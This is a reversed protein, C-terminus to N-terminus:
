RGFLATSAPWRVWYGCIIRVECRCRDDTGAKWAGLVRYDDRPDDPKEYRSGVYATCYGDLARLAVTASYNTDSDGIRWSACSNMFIVRARLEWAPVKEHNGCEEERFCVNELACQPGLIEVAATGKLQGVRQTCITTPHHAGRSFQADYGRGHLSLGLYDFTDRLTGLDGHELRRTRGPRDPLFQFREDDGKALLGDPWSMPQVHWLLLTKFALWLLQRADEAVMYGLCPFGAPFYSGHITTEVAEVLPFAFDRAMGWITLSRPQAGRLSLLWRGLDEPTAIARVARGRLQCYRCAIRWVREFDAGRYVLHVPAGDWYDLSSFSADARVHRPVRHSPTSRISLALASALSDLARDWRSDRIAPFPFVSEPRGQSAGPVSVVHLPDEVCAIERWHVSTMPALGVIATM